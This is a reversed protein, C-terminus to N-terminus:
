VQYLSYNCIIYRFLTIIDSNM